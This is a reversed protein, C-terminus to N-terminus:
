RRPKRSLCWRIVTGLLLAGAASWGFGIIGWATGGLIPSKMIAGGLVNWRMWLGFLVAVFAGAIGSGLVYVALVGSPSATLHMVVWVAVAVSIGLSVVAFGFFCGAMMAVLMPGM